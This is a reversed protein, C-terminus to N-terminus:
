ATKTFLAGFYSCQPESYSNNEQTHSFLEMLQANPGRIEIRLTKERETSHTSVKKTGKQKVKKKVFVSM